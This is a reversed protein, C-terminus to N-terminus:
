KLAEQGLTDIASQIAAAGTQPDDSDFAGLASLSRVIRADQDALALQAEPSMGETRLARASLENMTAILPSGSSYMGMILREDPDFQRWGEPGLILFGNRNTSCETQRAADAIMGVVADLAKQLSEGAKKRLDALEAAELKTGLKGLMEVLEAYAKQIEAYRPSEATVSPASYLRRVEDAIATVADLLKRRNEAAKKANDSDGNESEPVVRLADGLGKLKEVLASMETLERARARAEQNQIYLADSKEDYALSMGFPDVSRAPLTGSEFKVKNTLSKAKGTMRFRYLGASEPLSSGGAGCNGFVRFYYTTRFVVDKDVNAPQTGHQVLMSKPVCAVLLVGGMVTLVSSLRYMGPM